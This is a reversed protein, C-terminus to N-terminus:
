PLRSFPHGESWSRKELMMNTEDLETYHKFIIGKKFVRGCDELDRLDFLISEIHRHTWRLALRLNKIPPESWGADMFEEIKKGVKKLREKAM